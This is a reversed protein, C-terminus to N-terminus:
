IERRIFYSVKPMITSIRIFNFDKDRAL